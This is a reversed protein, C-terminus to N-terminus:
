WTGGDAGNIYNKLDGLTAQSGAASLQGGAGLADSFATRLVVSEAPALSLTPLQQSLSTSSAVQPLFDTALRTFLGTVAATAADPTAATAPPAMVFGLTGVVALSVASSLASRSRRHM